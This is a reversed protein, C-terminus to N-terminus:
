FAEIEQSRRSVDYGVSVQQGAQPTWVKAYNQPSDGTKTVYYSTFGLPPLSTAVFVLEVKTNSNRGPIQSVADPIPVLQFHFFQFHSIFHSSHNSSYVFSM